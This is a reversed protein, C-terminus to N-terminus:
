SACSACLAPNRSGLRYNRPHSTRVKAVVSKRRQMASIQHESAFVVQPADAGVTTKSIAQRRAHALGAPRAKRRVAQVDGEDAALFAGRLAVDHWGGAAWRAPQ